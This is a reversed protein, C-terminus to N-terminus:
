VSQWGVQWWKVEAVNTGNEMMPIAVTKRYWREEPLERNKKHRLRTAGDMRRVGM